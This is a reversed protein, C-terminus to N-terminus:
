APAALGYFRLANEGLAKRKSDDPLNAIHTKIEELVGYDADVHPYDSAWVFYDDGMHAVVTGTLTEDPDASVV